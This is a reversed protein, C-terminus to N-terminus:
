GFQIGLQPTHRPAAPMFVAEAQQLFTDLNPVRIDVYDPVPADEAGNECIHVTLIRPDLEKAKKLNGPTDEIFVFEEPKAKMLTMITDVPHTSHSKTVYGVEEFGIMARPLFYEIREQRKLGPIAWNVLCSQTVLGHEVAGRLNELRANVNACREFLQPFQQVTREFNIKNYLAHLDRQFEFEDVGMDAIAMEVFGRLGDGTKHYWEVGIRRLEDAGLREVAAPYLIQLAAVKIAGLYAYIDPVHSYRNHVGDYDHGWKRRTQDLVQKM